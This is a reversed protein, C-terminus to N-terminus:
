ISTPCEVFTLAQVFLGVEWKGVKWAGMNRSTSRGCVFLYISNSSVAAGIHDDDM